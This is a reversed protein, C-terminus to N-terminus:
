KTEKNEPMHGTGYNESISKWYSDENLSDDKIRAFVQDQVSDIDSDYKNDEAIDENESFSDAFSIDLYEEFVKEETSKCAFISHVHSSFRPLLKVCPSTRSFSMEVLGDYLIDDPLHLFSNNTFVQTTVNRPSTEFDSISEFSFDFEYQEPTDLTPLLIRASGEETMITDDDSSFYIKSTGFSHIISKEALISGNMIPKRVQMEEEERKDMKVSLLENEEDHAVYNDFYVMKLNFQESKHSKFYSIRFFIKM